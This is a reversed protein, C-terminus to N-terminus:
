WGSVMAGTDDFFYIKGDVTEWGIVPEGFVDYYYRNGDAEQWGTVIPEATTEPVTTELVTTAPVTEPPTTPIATTEPLVTTEAPEAACGALLLVAFLLIMAKKM